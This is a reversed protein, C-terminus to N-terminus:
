YMLVLKQSTKETPTKLEYFYIGAAQFQDAQLTLQHDGKAFQGDAVNAIVRGNLDYVTVSARTTEPLHFRITTQTTFPNPTNQYLKIAGEVATTTKERALLQLNTIEIEEYNEVYAEAVLDADEMWLLDSLRGDAKAKFTLDVIAAEEKLDQGAAVNWSCRIHGDMTVFNKTNLSPLADTGKLDVLELSTEDYALSFQFGVIANFAEATLSLQITEGAKLNKNEYILNLTRYQGRDQSVQGSGRVMSPDATCNVDGTKMAVLGTIEESTLPDVVVTEPFQENLPDSSNAFTYDDPVFRWSTNDAISTQRYLILKRLEIIKYPSDLFDIEQIHKQNM